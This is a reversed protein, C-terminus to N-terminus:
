GKKEWNGGMNNKSGSCVGEDRAAHLPDLSGSLSIGEKLRMREGMQRLELLGLHNKYAPM